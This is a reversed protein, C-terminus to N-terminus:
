SNQNAKEAPQNQFQCILKNIDIIKQIKTDM